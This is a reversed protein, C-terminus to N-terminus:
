LVFREAYQNRPSYQPRKVPSVVGESASDSEEGVRLCEFCPDLAVLSNSSTQAEIVGARDTPAVVPPKSTISVATGLFAAAATAWGTTAAMFPAVTDIKSRNFCAAINSSKWTHKTMHRITQQKNQGGHALSTRRAFSPSNFSTVGRQNKERLPIISHHVM